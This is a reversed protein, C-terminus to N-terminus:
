FSKVLHTDAIFIYYIKRWTTYVYAFYARVIYKLILGSKKGMQGSM